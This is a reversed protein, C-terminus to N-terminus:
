PSSAQNLWRILLASLLEQFTACAYRSCLSTIRASARAMAASRLRSPRSQAALRLQELAQEVGLRRHAREGLRNHEQAVTLHDGAAAQAEHELQFAQRDLCQLLGRVAVHYDQGAVGVIPM